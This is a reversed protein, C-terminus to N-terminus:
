ELDGEDPTPSVFEAAEGHLHEVSAWQVLKLQLTDNEFSAELETIACNPHRRMMTRTLKPFRRMFPLGISGGHAVLVLTKDEKGQCILKYGADTREYLELFNEGGPFRKDVDGQWWTGIIDDHLKWAAATPPSGELDGVHVERFPELLSVDGGVKSAIVEATEHARKLPSSFVQTVSFTRLYQATQEAQLKGKDTLPYDVLRHSFEKTLNARNEGHRVLLLRKVGM